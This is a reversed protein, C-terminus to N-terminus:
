NMGRNRSGKFWYCKTLGSIKDKDIFATKFNSEILKADQKYIKEQIVISM